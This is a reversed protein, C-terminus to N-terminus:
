MENYSSFFRILVLRMPNDTRVYGANSVRSVGIAEEHNYKCEYDSLIDVYRSKYKSCLKSTM